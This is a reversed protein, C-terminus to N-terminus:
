NKGNTCSWCSCNRNVPISKITGYRIISEMEFPLMGHPTIVLPVGAFTKLIRRRVEDDSTGEDALIETIIRNGYFLCYFWKNM